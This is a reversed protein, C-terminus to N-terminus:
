IMVILEEEMRRQATVRLNEELHIQRRKRADQRKYRPMTKGVVVVPSTAPLLDDQAAEYTLGWSGDWTHGWAGGWADGTWISM